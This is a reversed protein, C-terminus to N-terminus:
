LCKLSVHDLRRNVVANISSIGINIIDVNVTTILQKRTLHM